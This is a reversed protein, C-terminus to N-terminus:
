RRGGTEGSPEAGQTNPRQEFRGHFGALFGAHPQVAHHASQILKMGNRNRQRRRLFQFRGPLFLLLFLLALFDLILVVGHAMGVFPHYGADSGFIGHLDASRQCLECGHFLLPLQVVIDGPDLGGANLTDFIHRLFRQSGQGLADRVKTQASAIGIAKGGQVLQVPFQLHLLAEPLLFIQQVFGRVDRSRLRVSRLLVRRFGVPIVQAGMFRRFPVVYVPVRQQRVKLLLVTQQNLQVLGDALHRFSIVPPLLLIQGDM